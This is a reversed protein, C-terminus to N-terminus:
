PYIDKNQPDTTVFLYLCIVHVTQSKKKRESIPILCLLHFSSLLLLQLHLLQLEHLLAIGLHLSTTRIM